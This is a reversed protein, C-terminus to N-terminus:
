SEQKIRKRSSDKYNHELYLSNLLRFYATLTIQILPNLLGIGGALEYREKLPLSIGMNSSM